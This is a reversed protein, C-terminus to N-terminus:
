GPWNPAVWGREALAARTTTRFADRADRDLAGIGRWDPPVLERAFDRVAARFAEVSREAQVTM